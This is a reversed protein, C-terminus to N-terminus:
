SKNEQRMKDNVIKQVVTYDYGAQTLRHKREDGNGWDGRIVEIAIEENTKTTHTSGGQM